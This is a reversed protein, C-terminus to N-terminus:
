TSAPPLRPVTFRFEAGVGEESEVEITGAHAEVFAKAIALGLGVGRDFDSGQEQLDRTRAEEGRLFPEFVHPLDKKPIGPGTDKVSVTVQGDERRATLHVTGGPPTYRIANGILNSLV